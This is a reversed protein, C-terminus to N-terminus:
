ISFCLAGVDCKTANVCDRSPCERPPLQNIDADDGLYYGEANVQRIVKGKSFDAIIAQRMAPYDTFSVEYEKYQEAVVGKASKVVGKSVYIIKGVAHVPFKLVSLAAIYRLVQKVNNVMPERLDIFKEHKMSKIEVVKIVGDQMYSYDPSLIMGSGRLIVPLEHFIDPTHGCKVCEGEPTVNTVVRKLHYNQEVSAHGCPCKWVGFSKEKGIGKLLQTRIHEETARGMGWVVRDSASVGYGETHVYETKSRRLLAVRRPCINEIHTAHVLGGDFVKRIREGSEDVSDQAMVIDILRVSSGLPNQRIFKATIDKNKRLHKM